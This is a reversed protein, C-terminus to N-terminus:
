GTWDTPRKRPRSGDDGPDRHGDDEEEEWRRVDLRKEMPGGDLCRSPLCIDAWSPPANDAFVIFEDEIDDPDDPRGKPPIEMVTNYDEVPRGALAANAPQGSRVSPDLKLIGWSATFCYLSVWAKQYSRGKYTLSVRVDDRHELDPPYAEFEFDSDRLRQSTWSSAIPRCRGAHSRYAM